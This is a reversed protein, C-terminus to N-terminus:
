GSKSFPVVRHFGRSNVLLPSEKRETQTDDPVCLREASPFINENFHGAGERRKGGGAGAEDPSPPIRVNLRVNVNYAYKCLTATRASWKGIAARARARACARKVHQVITACM